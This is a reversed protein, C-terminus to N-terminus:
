SLLTSPECFHDKVLVWSEGRREYVFIHRERGGEDVDEEAIHLDIDVFAAVYLRGDRGLVQERPVIKVNARDYAVESALMDRWHRIRECLQQYEESDPFSAKARELAVDDEAADGTIMLAVLNELNEGATADIEDLSLEKVAEGEPLGFDCRDSPAPDAPGCGAAAIGAFVLFLLIMFILRRM